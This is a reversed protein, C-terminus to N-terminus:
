VFDTEQSSTHFVLTETSEINTENCQCIQNNCNICVSSLIGYSNSIHVNPVTQTESQQIISDSITANTPQMIQWDVNWADNKQNKNNDVPITRMRDHTNNVILM